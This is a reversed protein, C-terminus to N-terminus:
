KLIGKNYIIYHVTGEDYWISKQPVAIGDIGNKTMLEMFKNPNQHYFVNAWIGMLQEIVNENDLISNILM